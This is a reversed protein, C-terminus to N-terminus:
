SFETAVMGSGIAIFGVGVAVVFARGAREQRLVRAKQGSSRHYDLADRTLRDNIERRWVIIFLGILVLLVGPLARGSM